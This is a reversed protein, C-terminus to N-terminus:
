LDREAVEMNGEIAERLKRCYFLKQACWVIPMGVFRTDMLNMCLMPKASGMKKVVCM